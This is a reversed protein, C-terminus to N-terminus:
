LLSMCTGSFELYLDDGNLTQTFFFIYIYIYIYASLCLSLLMSQIYNKDLLFFDVLSYISIFNTRASSELISENPPDNFFICQVAYCATKEITIKYM